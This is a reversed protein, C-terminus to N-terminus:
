HQVGPTQATSKGLAWSGENTTLGLHPTTAPETGRDAHLWANDRSIGGTPFAATAAPSGPSPGGSWPRHTRYDNQFAPDAARHRHERQLADHEHLDM